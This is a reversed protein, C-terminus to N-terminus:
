DVVNLIIILIIPVVIAGFLFDMMVDGGAVLVCRGRRGRRHCRHGMGM